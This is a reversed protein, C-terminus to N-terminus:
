LASITYHAANERLYDLLAALEAQELEEPTEALPLQSNDEPM